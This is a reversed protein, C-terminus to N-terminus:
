GRLRLDLLGELEAIGAEVFACRGDAAARRLAAAGAAFAAEHKRHAVKRLLQLARRGCRRAEAADSALPLIAALVALEEARDVCAAASLRQEVDARAAPAAAALRELAAEPEPFRHLRPMALTVGPLPECRDGDGGLLAAVRRPAFAGALLLRLRGRALRAEIAARSAPSPVGEREVVWLLETNRTERAASQRGGRYKVYGNSRISVRGREELIARLEDVPIIGDSSYSLVILRADVVDLLGRLAAPARSRSCYDSRTATWDRRIAAKFRLRGDAALEDSVPPRDWLAITNLLHYNSGYQHQNYPPDLYCLDASRGRVTDAAEGRVVLAPAPGDILVPPELVIPALIRRLSDRGHGGFGKHCAKFVGSTNTHTATGHLLGALLVSREAAADGGGSGGEPGGPYLEEIRNRIADIRLANETTYFLRERRYDATATERPGYHRAVYRESEPPPALANMEALVAALGGGAAFLRPLRSAELGLHCRNIEVSFPEWDGATVQWGRARALRAAAGSGAFPDLFTRVPRRGELEDFVADLFPLLRRKSGIYPILQRKLYDDVAASAGRTVASM